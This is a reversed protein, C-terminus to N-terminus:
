AAQKNDKIEKRAAEVAAKQKYQMSIIAQSLAPKQAYKSLALDLLTEDIEFETFVAQKKEEITKKYLTQIERDIQADPVSSAEYKRHVTQMSSIISDTVTNMVATFIEIVKDMDLWDPVAKLDDPDPGQGSITRQLKEIQQLLKVFDPDEAHIKAAADAAEETTKYKKLLRTHAVEISNTYEKQFFTNIDDETKGQQQMESVKMTLRYMTASMEDVMESFMAILNDRSLEGKEETAEQTAQETAQDTETKKKDKKKGKKSPKDAVAAAEPSASVQKADAPKSLWKVLFYAAGVAATAGLAMLGWKQLDDNSKNKNDSM